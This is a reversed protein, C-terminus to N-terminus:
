DKEIRKFTMGGAKNRRGNIVASIKTASIGTKRSCDCIGEYIGFQEGDIFAIIDGKYNVFKSGLMGLSPNDMKM